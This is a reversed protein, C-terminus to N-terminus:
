GVVRRHTVVGRPPPLVARVDVRPETVGHFERPRVRDRDADVEGANAAESTGPVQGARVHHGTAAAPDTTRHDLPEETIVTRAAHDGDLEVQGREGPGVVM